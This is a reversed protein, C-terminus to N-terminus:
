EASFTPVAGAQLNNSDSIESKSDQSRQKWAVSLGSSDSVENDGGIEQKPCRLDNDAIDIDDKQEAQESEVREPRILALEEDRVDGETKRLCSYWHWKLEDMFTFADPSYNARNRCTHLILAFSIFAITCMSWTFPSTMSLKAFFTELLDDDPPLESFSGSDGIGSDFSSVGTTM